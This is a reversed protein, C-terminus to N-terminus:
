KKINDYSFRKTGAQKYWFDKEQVPCGMGRKSSSCSSVIASLLVAILLVKRM